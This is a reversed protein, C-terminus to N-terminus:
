RGFIIKLVIFVLKCQYDEYAWTLMSGHIEELLIGTCNVGCRLRSIAYTLCRKQWLISENRHLYEFPSIICLNSWFMM